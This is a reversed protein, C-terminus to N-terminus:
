FRVPNKPISNELCSDHHKTRRRTNPILELHTAAGRTAQSLCLFALTVLCHTTVIPTSLRIYRCSGSAAPSSPIVWASDVEVAVSRQLLNVSVVLRHQGKFDVLIGELGCLPGYEVRVRQGIELFPWPRSPLGSRVAAQIAAIEGDDVPIPCKGIGVIAVVGPTFGHIVDEM